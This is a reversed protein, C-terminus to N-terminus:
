LWTLPITASKSQADFRTQGTTTGNAHSGNAHFYDDETQARLAEPNMPKVARPRLVNGHNGNMQPEVATAM